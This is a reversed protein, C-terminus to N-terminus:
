VPPALGAKYRRALESELADIVAHVRHREESLQKEEAGVREITQEIEAPDLEPLRALHDESLIREARRRGSSESVKTVLGPRAGRGGSGGSETLAEELVEIARATGRGRRRAEIEAKLIDLRGHLLRRVYSLDDEEEHARRLKSRLESAAIGDLGMVFSPDLVEDIRRRSESAM